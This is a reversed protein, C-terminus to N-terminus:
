NKVSSETSPNQPEPANSRIQDALDKLDTSSPKSSSSKSSSSFISTRARKNSPQSIYQEEILDLQKDSKNFNLKLRGVASIVSKKLNDKLSDYRGNANTYSVIVNSEIGKQNTVPNYLKKSLMFSQRGIANNVKYSNTLVPATYLLLPFTYPLDEPACTSDRQPSSLPVTQILGLKFLSALYIDRVISRYFLSNTLFFNGYEVNQHYVYRGIMLVISNKEFEVILHESNGTFGKYKLERFEDDDNNVRYVATGTLFKDNGSVTKIFCFATFVSSM